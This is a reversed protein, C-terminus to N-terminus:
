YYMCFPGVIALYRRPIAINNKPAFPNKCNTVGGEIPAAAFAYMVAIILVPNKNWNVFRIKKADATISKDFLYTGNARAIMNGTIVTTTNNWMKRSMALM